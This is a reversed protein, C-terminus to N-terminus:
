RDFDGTYAGGGRGVGEGGGMFFVVGDLVLGCV